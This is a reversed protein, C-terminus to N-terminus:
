GEWMGWEREGIPRPVHHLACAPRYSEEGGVLVTGADAGLRQTFPAPEGCWAGSGGERVHACRATMRHLLLADRSALAETALQLCGGFPQARFDLDLGAVVLGARDGPLARLRHWFDLLGAGFFQAEDVAYLVGARPSLTALDGLIDDAAQSLGTRAVVCTPHRIDISPKLLRVSSFEGSHRAAAVRTLLLHTKGSSMPGLYLELCRLSAARASAPM